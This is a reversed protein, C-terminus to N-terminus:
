NFLGNTFRPNGDHGKIVCTIADAVCDGLVVEAEPADHNGIGHIWQGDRAIRPELDRPARVHSGGFNLDLTRVPQFM